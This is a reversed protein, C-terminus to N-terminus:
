NKLVELQNKELWQKRQEYDPMFKGLFTWYDYGHGSIRLHALEHLIVYDIMKRPTKLLHINFNLVGSPSASGWKSKLNKIKFGKPKVQLKVSYSQLKRSIFKSYKSELWSFYMSHIKELDITKDRTHIEFYNKKYFIQDTMQNTKIKYSISKGLYILSNEKLKIKPKRHKLLVQKEFIWSTKKELIKKIENINMSQPARIEVDNSEVIIQITKIRKTQIIRFPILAEGYRLKNQM